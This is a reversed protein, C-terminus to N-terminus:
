GVRVCEWDERAELDSHDVIQVLQSFFFPSRFSKLFMINEALYPFDDPLGDQVPFEADNLSQHGEGLVALLQSFPHSDSGCFLLTFDALFHFFEINFM